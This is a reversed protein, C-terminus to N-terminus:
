TPFILTEARSGIETKSQVDYNIGFVLFSKRNTKDTFSKM